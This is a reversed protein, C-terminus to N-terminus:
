AELSRIPRHAGVTATVLRWVCTCLASHSRAVCLWGEEQESVKELLDMMMSALGLRRHQPSVTIASVHGSRRSFSHTDAGSLLSSLTGSGTALLPPSLAVCQWDRGRGETKGM